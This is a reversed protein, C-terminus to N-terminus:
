RALSCWPVEQGLEVRHASLNLTASQWVHGKKKLHINLDLNLDKVQM